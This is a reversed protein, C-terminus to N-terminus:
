SFGLKKLSDLLRWFVGSSPVGRSTEGKSQFAEEPATVLLLVNAVSVGRHFFLSGVLIVFFLIYYYITLAAVCVLM